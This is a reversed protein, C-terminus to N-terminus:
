VIYRMKVNNLNWKMKLIGAFQQWWAQAVQVLRYISKRLKLYGRDIM